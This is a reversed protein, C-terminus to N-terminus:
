CVDHDGKTYDTAGFIYEVVEQVWGELHEMVFADSYNFIEGTEFVLILSDSNPQEKETASSVEVASSSNRIPM